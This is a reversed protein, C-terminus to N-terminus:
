YVEVIPSRNGQADMAGTMEWHVDVAVVDPRIFRTKIATYSQHSNKFITAFIPAHFAGIKSRGSAVEGRWNSYRDVSRSCIFNQGAPDM